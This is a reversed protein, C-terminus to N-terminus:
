PSGGTPKFIKRLPDPKPEAMADSILGKLIQHQVKNTHPMVQILPAEALRAQGTTTGYTIPTSANVTAFLAAKPVAPSHFKRYFADLMRIILELKTRQERSVSCRRIPRIPGFPEPLVVISDAMAPIVVVLEPFTRMPTESSALISRRRLM